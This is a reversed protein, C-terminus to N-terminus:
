AVISKSHAKVTNILADIECPKKLYGQAGLQDVKEPLNERGSILIIPIKSVSSNSRVKQVFLYPDFQPMSLDMLILGLKTESDLLNLALQQSDAEFTSFGEMKLCESYFFRSDFDDEIILVANGTM